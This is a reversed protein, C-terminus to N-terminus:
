NGNTTRDLIDFYQQICRKPDFHEEAYARAQRGMKQSLAQDNYLTVVAKAIESPDGANVCIGCQAERVLRIADTGPNASCIIPRGAAMISQIKGPIVPTTLEIRLPVLGVDSASLLNYYMDPPQTPLIRVNHLGLLKVKNEVHKRMVGDGAFIFVIHPYQQLLSAAEVIDDMGQAFGMAGAYSLVFSDGLEHTDRFNNSRSPPHPTDLNVWNFVAHVRSPDVGTSIIYDRNGKSHVTISDAHHYLFLEMRRAVAIMMRNTLFGLDIATQPYPDHIHIIIKGRSVRAILYAAIGLPLPPSYVIVAHQRGLILGFFLFIFALFFQKFVRFLPIKRSFPLGALRHIRIGKYNERVYPRRPIRGTDRTLYRDPKETIVSVEHGRNSFKEALESVLRAASNMIPPYADSILLIKM